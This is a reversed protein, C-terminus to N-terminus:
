AGAVIRLHRTIAHLRLLRLADQAAWRGYPSLQRAESAQQRGLLCWLGTM